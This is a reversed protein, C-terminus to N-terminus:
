AHRCVCAERERPRSGSFLLFGEAPNTKAQIGLTGLVQIEEQVDSMFGLRASGVSEHM